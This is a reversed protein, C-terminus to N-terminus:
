FVENGTATQLPTILLYLHTSSQFLRKSCILAARCLVAMTEWFNSFYVAKAKHLRICVSLELAVPPSPFVDMMCDSM